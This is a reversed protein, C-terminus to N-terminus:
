KKQIHPKVFLLFLAGIASMAVIAIITVNFGHTTALYGGVVALSASVIDTLTYYLGWETGEKGKDVHRTFMAVFTPFTFATFCGLLFQVLYLQLPTNILLYLLPLLAILVTFVIIILFDDKEGKHKDIYHAVPVQFVSKTFLYVGAATGAVAANGGQIYDSIFIPFIPTLMSTAGVFITDSIIFFKIVPNIDNLFRGKILTTHKKM